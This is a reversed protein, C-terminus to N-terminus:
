KRHRRAINELSAEVLEYDQLSSIGFYMARLSKGSVFRSASPNTSREGMLRGGSASASERERRLALVYARRWFFVRNWFGGELSLPYSELRLISSDALTKESEITM